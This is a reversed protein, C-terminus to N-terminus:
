RAVFPRVAQDQLPHIDACGMGVVHGGATLKVEVRVTPPDEGRSRVRSVRSSPSKPLAFPLRHYEKWAITRKEDPSEALVKSMPRKGGRFSQRTLSPRVRRFGTVSWKEDKPNVVDLWRGGKGTVSSVPSDTSAADSSNSDVATELCEAGGEAQEAGSPGVVFVSRVGVAMRLPDGPDGARLLDVSHLHVVVSDM